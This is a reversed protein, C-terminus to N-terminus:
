NKNGSVRREFSRLDRLRQDVAECHDKSQEKEATDRGTDRDSEKQQDKTLELYRTVNATVAALSIFSLEENDNSNQLDREM